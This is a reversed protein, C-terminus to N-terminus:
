KEAFARIFAPAGFSGAPAGEGSSVVEGVFNALGGRSSWDIVGEKSKKHFPRRVAGAGQFTFAIDPLPSRYSDSVSTLFYRM